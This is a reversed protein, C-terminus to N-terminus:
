KKGGSDMVPHGASGAPHRYAYILGLLGLQIMLGPALAPPAKARLIKWFLETRPQNPDVEMQLELNGRYHLLVGLVGAALFAIMITQLTRLAARSPRLAQWGAAALAAAILGLPAAQWAGDYHELLVLEVAAGVLGFALLALLLRRLPTVPDPTQRM